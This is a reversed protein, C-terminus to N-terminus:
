TLILRTNFIISKKLETQKTTRVDNVNGEQKKYYNQTNM